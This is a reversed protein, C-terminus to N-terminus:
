MVIDEAYTDRTNDILSFNSKNLYDKIASGGTAASIMSLDGGEALSM